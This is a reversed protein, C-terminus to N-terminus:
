QGTESQESETSTHIRNQGTSGIHNQSVSNCSLQGKVDVNFILSALNQLSRQKNRFDLSPTQSKWTLDQRFAM